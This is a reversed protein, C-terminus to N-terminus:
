KVEEKIKKLFINTPGLGKYGLKRMFPFYPSKNAVATLYWSCHNEKFVKDVQPTLTVTDRATGKERSMWWLLLPAGNCSGYGIIEGDKWVVHTPAMVRHNDEYAAQLLPETDLMRFAKLEASM